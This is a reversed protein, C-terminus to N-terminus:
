YKRLVQLWYYQLHHYHLVRPAEIFPKHVEILLDPLWYRTAANEDETGYSEVDAPKANFDM